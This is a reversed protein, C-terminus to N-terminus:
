DEQKDVEDNVDNENNEAQEDKTKKKAKVVTDKGLMDESMGKEESSNKSLIDKDTEFEKELDEIESMIDALEADDFGQDLDKAEKAM